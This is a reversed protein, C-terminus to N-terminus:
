PPIPGWCFALHAPLALFLTAAAALSRLRCTRYAQPEFM